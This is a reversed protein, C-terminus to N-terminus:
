DVAPPLFTETVKWKGALPSVPETHPLTNLRMQPEYSPTAADWNDDGQSVGPCGHYAQVAYVPPPAPTTENVRMQPRYYDPWEDDITTVGPVAHHQSVITTPVRAGEMEDWFLRSPSVVITQPTGQLYFWAEVPPSLVAVGVSFPLFAPDPSAGYTWVIPLFGLGPVINGPEAGVAGVEATFSV